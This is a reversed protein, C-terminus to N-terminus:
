TASAGDASAQLRALAHSAHTIARTADRFVPLLAAYAAHAAPDPAHTLTVPVLEEAAHLDPFTGLAHRALLAAGLCSADPSDPFHVVHGLADTLIQRWLASRAFGGSARVQTVPPTRPQVLDRVTLLNLVVGELAARLYHARTHRLTAGVFAGRAHADWLPAREGLLYPLFLLGDSGAPARAAEDLIADYPTGAPSATFHDRLYRLVVAGNNIPGGVMWLGPTLTYCFTRGEPDTRPETVTARVAGSTGLSICLTGPRMAGSGLNALCGDNGGVVLPTGTMLGAREAMDPRLPALRFTSPVLPSLRAPTVRAVRLAEDNWTRAGLDYLGTASAISEDVVWEGTLAHLVYEKLSVFRHSAGAVGPHEEHLWRLKATLNMAYPPTGTRESIALGREHTRIHEAWSAARQDAWTFAPTLPRARADVGLVSHMAGSFGVGTIREGGVSGTVERLANLTAHLVADPDQEAAGPAPTRLPYAREARATVTATADYAVVKVATTGLDVGLTVPTRTPTRHPM